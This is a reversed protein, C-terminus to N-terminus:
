AARRQPSSCLAEAIVDVAKAWDLEEGARAGVGFAILADAPKRGDRFFRACAQRSYGLAQHWQLSNINTPTM